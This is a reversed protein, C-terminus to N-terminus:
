IEYSRQSPDTDLTLSLTEPEYSSSSPPSSYPSRTIVPVHVEAAIDTVTLTVVPNVNSALIPTPQDPSSGRGRSHSYFGSKEEFMIREKEFTNTDNRMILGRDDPNNAM